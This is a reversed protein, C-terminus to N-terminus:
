PPPLFPREQGDLALRLNKVAISLPRTDTALCVAFNRSAFQVLNEGARLSLALPAFPKFMDWDVDVSEQKTGNVLIDVQNPRQISYLEGHLEAHGGRETTIRAEGRGGTWCWWDCGAREVPHWGQTLVAVNGSPRAAIFTCEHQFEERDGIWKWAAKNQPASRDFQIKQRANNWPDDFFHDVVDLGAARLTEQLERFSFIHTHRSEIPESFDLDPYTLGNILYLLRHWHQMNPTSLFAYGSPKLARHIERFVPLPSHLFHEVVECCLVADCSRSDVPLPQSTLDRLYVDMECRWGDPLEYVATFKDRPDLPSFTSGIIKADLFRAFLLELQNPMSGVSFIRPRRPLLSAFRDMVIAFRKAHTRAYSEGLRRQEDNLELDIRRVNLCFDLIEQETLPLATGAGNTLPKSSSM